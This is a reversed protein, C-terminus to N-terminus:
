NHLFFEFSLEQDTLLHVNIEPVAAMKNIYSEIQGKNTIIGRFDFIFRTGEIQPDITVSLYNEAFAKISSHLCAFFSRTWETLMEDDIYDCKSGDLVDFELQFSHNEWNHTLILSAFQPINLNSLKAEQQAEVVINEIIEQVRDMKNLDLNGKILQIKNLWDHRAYRLVDITNWDKNMCASRCAKKHHSGATLIDFLFSITLM